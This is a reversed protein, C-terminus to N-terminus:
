QDYNHAVRKVDRIWQQLYDRTPTGAIRVSTPEHAGTQLKNCLLYLPAFWPLPTLMAPATPNRKSHKHTLCKHYLVSRVANQMRGAKM